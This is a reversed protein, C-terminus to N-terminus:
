NCAKEYGRKTIMFFVVRKGATTKATAVTTIALNTTTGSEEPSEFGLAVGFAALLEM